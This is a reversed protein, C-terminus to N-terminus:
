TNEYENKRIQSPLLYFSKEVGGGRGGGGGEEDVACM